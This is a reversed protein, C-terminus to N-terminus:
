RDEKKPKKEYKSADGTWSSKWHFIDNAEWPTLEFLPQNKGDGMGNVGWFGNNGDEMM